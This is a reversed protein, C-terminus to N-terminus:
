WWKQINLPTFIVKTIKTPPKLNGYSQLFEFSWVGFFDTIKSYQFAVLTSMDLQFWNPSSTMKPGPHM